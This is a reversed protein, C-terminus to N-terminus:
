MFPFWLEEELDHHTHVFHHFVPFFKALHAPQWARMPKGAQVQQLTTEVGMVINTMDYRISNHVLM